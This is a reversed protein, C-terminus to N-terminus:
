KVKALKITGLVQIFEPQALCTNLWRLLNCYSDDTNLLANQVAPLLIAAMSIDACSMREGVLYTQTLLLDNLRTMIKITEIKSRQFGKSETVWSYVPPKVENLAYFLWQFIQAKTSEFSDTMNHKSRGSLLLYTAISAAGEFYKGNEYELKPKGDFDNSEKVHMKKSKSGYYEWTILILNIIPSNRTKCHLIVFNEKLMEKLSLKLSAATVEKLIPEKAVTVLKANDPLKVTEQTSM